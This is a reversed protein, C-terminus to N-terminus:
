SWVVNFAGTRAQDGFNLLMPGASPHGSPFLLNEKDKWNIHILVRSSAFWVGSVFSPLTQSAPSIKEGM